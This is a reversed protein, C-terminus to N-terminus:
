GNVSGLSQTNLSVILRVHIVSRYNTYIRNVTATAINKYEQTVAIICDILTIAEYTQVTSRYLTRKITSYCDVAVSQTTAVINEQLPEHHRPQRSYSYAAHKAGVTGGCNSNRNAVVQKQPAM